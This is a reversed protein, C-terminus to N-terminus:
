VSNNEISLLEEVKKACSRFYPTQEDFYGKVQYWVARPDAVGVLATIDTATYGQIKLHYAAIMRAFYHERVCSCSLITERDVGTVSEVTDFIRQIAVDEKM